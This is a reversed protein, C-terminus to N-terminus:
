GWLVAELFQRAEHHHPIDRWEARSYRHGYTCCWDQACVFRLPCSCRMLARYLAALGDVDIRAYPSHEPM